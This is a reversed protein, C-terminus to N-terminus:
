ISTVYCCESYPKVANGMLESWMDVFQAAHIYAENRPSYGGTRSFLDWDDEAAKKTVTNDVQLFSEGVSRRRCRTCVLDKAVTSFM